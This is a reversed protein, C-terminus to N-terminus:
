GRNGPSHSESRRRGSFGIALAILTLVILVLGGFVIGGWLALASYFGDDVAAHIVPNLTIQLLLELIIRLFPVLAELLNALHMILIQLVGLLVQLADDLMPQSREWIVRGYHELADM